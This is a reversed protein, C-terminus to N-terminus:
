NLLISYTESYNSSNGSKDVSKIKFFIKRNLSLDFPYLYVSFHNSPYIVERNMLSSSFGFKIKYGQFDFERNRSCSINFSNRGNNVSIVIDSLKEPPLSLIIPIILDAMVQHGSPSPHNGKIDELMAEWGNPNDFFAKYTDIFSFDNESAMSKIKVNLEETQKKFYEVGARFRKQPPVTSIIPYMRYNDRANELIWKLNNTTSTSSFSGKGVDNTGFLVLFFYGKGNLLDRDMREVGMLSSDRNVGLNITYTQGYESNFYESAKAWYTLSPNYSDSLNNMRMKGWTISDGFGVITNLETEIFTSKTLPGRKIETKEKLSATLEDLNVSYKYKHNLTQTRMSVSYKDSVDNNEIIIRNEDGSTNTIRKTLNRDMDHIFIDENDLGNIGRFFLFRPRGRDYVIETQSSIFEFGRCVLERGSDSLSDFLNLKVCEEKYNIWTVSYNGDRVFMKPFLNEGPTNYSLNKKYKKNLFIDSGFPGTEVMLHAVKGNLLYKKTSVKENATMSVSFVILFIISLIINKM